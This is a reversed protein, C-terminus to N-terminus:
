QHPGMGERLVRRLIKGSPTRPIASVVEWQRIQKFGALRDSMFRSLTEVDLTAGLRAVVFAKPVEGAEADPVGVVACDAVEARELLVAELEAPAISFGRCKIMEKKRDVLFLCGREDVWGIDGTHM